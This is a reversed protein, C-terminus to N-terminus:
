IITSNIYNELKKKSILYVSDSYGFFKWDIYESIDLKTLKKSDFTMKYWERNLYKEDFIGIDHAKFPFYSIELFRSNSIAHRYFENFSDFLEDVNHDNWVDELYPTVDEMKNIIEKTVYFEDKFMSIEKKDNVFAIPERTGDYYDVSTNNFGYDLIYLKNNWIGWQDNRNLDNPKIGSKELIDVLELFNKYWKPTKFKPNMAIEKNHQKIWVRHMDLLAEISNPIRRIGFTDDLMDKWQEEDPTPAYPMQIWNSINMNNLKLGKNKVSSDIIPLFFKTVGFEKQFNLEELNQAIGRSNMALKIVTKFKDTSSDYDLKFKKLLKPDINDNEINVVFAVRSSGSGVEVGIKKLNDKIDSFYEDYMGDGSPDLYDSGIGKPLPTEYLLKEYHNLVISKM